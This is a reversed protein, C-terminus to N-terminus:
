IYSRNDAVLSDSERSDNEGEEETMRLRANISFYLAGFIVTPILVVFGAILLTVGPMSKKIFVSFVNDFTLAGLLLALQDVSSLVTFVRGQEDEEVLTSMISREAVFLYQGFIGIFPVAYVQSSYQVLALMLFFACRSLGGMVGVAADKVGVFRRLLPLLVLLSCGDVACKIGYYISYEAFDWGFKYNLYLFTNDTEGVIVFSVLFNAVVDAIVMARLGDARSRFTTAIADSVGRLIARCWTDRSYGDVADHDPRDESIKKSLDHRIDFSERSDRYGYDSFTFYNLSEPTSVSILRSRSCEPHGEVIRAKSSALLTVSDANDLASDSASKSLCIERRKELLATSMEKNRTRVNTVIKVKSAILSPTVRYSGAFHTVGGNENLSAQREIRTQSMNMSTIDQVIEEDKRSLRELSSGSITENKVADGQSVGTDADHSRESDHPADITATGQPPTGYLSITKMSGASPAHVSIEEDPSTDETVTIDPPTGYISSMSITKAAELPVALAPILLPTPIDFSSSFEGKSDPLAREGLNGLHGVSKSVSAKTSATSGAPSYEEAKIEPLKRSANGDLSGIEGDREAVSFIVCSAFSRHRHHSLTSDLSGYYRHHPQSSLVPPGDLDDYSYRLHPCDLQVDNRLVCLIYLLTLIFGSQLGLFLYVYNTTIYTTVLNMLLLGGAAGLFIAAELVSLRITRKELPTEQVIYSTVASKLTVYGGTIGGLCVGIFVLQIPCTEFYAVLVCTMAWAVGGGAPATMLVKRSMRDMWYGLFQSSIVSSLANIATAVMYLQVAESRIDDQPVADTLTGKDSYYGAVKWRIEDSGIVSTYGYANINVPSFGSTSSSLSSNLSSPAPTGSCDIVGTKQLCLRDLIFKQGLLMMTSYCCVYLFIVPEASLLVM